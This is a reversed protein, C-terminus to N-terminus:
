VRLSVTTRGSWTPWPRMSSHAGYSYPVNTLVLRLLPQCCVFIFPIL